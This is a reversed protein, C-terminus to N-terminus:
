KLISIQEKDLLKNYNYHFVVAKLLDELNMLVQPNTKITTQVLGTNCKLHKCGMNKTCKPCSCPKKAAEISSLLNDIENFELLLATDDIQLQIRQKGSKEHLIYIIGTENAYISQLYNM